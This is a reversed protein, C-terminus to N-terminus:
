PRLESGLLAALRSLGEANLHIDGPPRDVFVQTEGQTRLWGDVPAQLDIFPLDAALLVAVLQARRRTAFDADHGPRQPMVVVRLPISADRLRAVLADLYQGYILAKAPLPPDHSASPTLLWRQLQALDRAAWSADMTAAIPLPLRSELVMRGWPRRAWLPTACRPRPITGELWFPPQGDCSEVPAEVEDLDNGPMIHLVVLNPAQLALVRQLVALQVDISTGPVGANVQGVAPDRAALRAPLTEGSGVGLGYVMSDGLHLVWPKDQPPSEMRLIGAKCQGIEAHLACHVRLAHPGVPLGDPRPSAPGWLALAEHEVVPPAPLLVRAAGELAGAAAASAGLGLLWTKPNACRAHAVALFVLSAVAAIAAGDLSGVRRTAVAAVAGLLPGGGVVLWILPRSAVRRALGLRLALGISGGGWLAMLWWIWLWGGTSLYWTGARDVRSERLLCFCAWAADATGALLAVSSLGRRWDPKSPAVFRCLLLVVLLPAVLRAAVGLWQHLRIPRPRWHPAQAQQTWGPPHATLADYLIDVDRPAGAPFQICWTATRHGACPEDPPLLIMGFCDAGKACVQALVRRPEIRADQLHFRPEIAAFAHELWPGVSPPLVPYAPTGPSASAPVAPCALVLAIALVCRCGFAVGAAPCRCVQEITWCSGSM